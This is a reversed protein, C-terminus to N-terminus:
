QCRIEEGRATYQCSVDRGVRDSLAISVLQRTNYPTDERQGLLYLPETYRAAVM